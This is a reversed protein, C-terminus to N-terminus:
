ILMFLALFVLTTLFSYLGSDLIIDWNEKEKQYNILAIYFVLFNYFFLLFLTLPYSFYKKEAVFGLIFNGWSIIVMVGFFIDM